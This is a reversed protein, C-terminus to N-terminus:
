LLADAFHKALELMEVSAAQVWSAKSQAAQRVFWLLSVEFSKFAYINFIKQSFTKRRFLRTWKRSQMIAKERRGDAFHWLGLDFATNQISVNKICLVSFTKQHPRHKLKTVPNTGTAAATFLSRKSNALRYCRNLQIWKFAVQCSNMWNENASKFGCEDAHFGGFLLCELMENM